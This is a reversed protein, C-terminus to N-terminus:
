KSLVTCVGWTDCGPRKGTLWESSELVKLGFKQALMEVETSFLYRMRHREHLEEVASSKKDHIYVHYNVDVCNTDYNIDPEAIRTVRIEDSEMRKVRVSPRETLVAPGYWYDFIFVGGSKMHLAATEFMAYLDANTSQYSVVHFLSIVADFVRDIRCDCVNGQSFSLSKKVEPVLSACRGQAVELMEDSIDVGHLSFGKEALLLAHTGTGCGLELISRTHPAYRTLLTEVFCVEAAYDKDKYLLDYYRAYAGFVSM